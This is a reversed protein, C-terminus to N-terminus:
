GRAKLLWFIFRQGFALPSSSDEPAVAGRDNNAGRDNALNWGEGLQTAMLLRPQAHFGFAIVGINLGNASRDAM